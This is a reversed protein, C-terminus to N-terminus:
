PQATDPSRGSPSLRLAVSMVACLLILSFMLWGQWVGFSINLVCFVSVLSGAVLARNQGFSPRRAMRALLFGLLGIVLVIGFLGLELWVQLPANHPHLPMWNGIELRGDSRTGYVCDGVFATVKGSPISRAADMGWGILPKEVIRQTSYNYIVLRHAASCKYACITCLTKDSLQVAFLAPMALVLGGLVIMTPWFARGYRYVLLFVAAGVVLALKASESEMFFTTAVTTGILVLALPKLSMRALGIAAPLLICVAISAGRNYSSALYPEPRAFALLGGSTALDISAIIQGAILGVAAWTLVSRKQPESMKECLVVVLVAAVAYGLLKLATKTADGPEIAWVTSLLAYCPLALFVANQRWLVKLDEVTMAKLFGAHVILILLIPIWLGKPALYGFLGLLAFIM